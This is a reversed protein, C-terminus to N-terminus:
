DEVSIELKSLSAGSALAFSLHNGSSESALGLSDLFATKQGFKKGSKQGRDNQRMFGM